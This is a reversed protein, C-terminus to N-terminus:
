KELADKLESTAEKAEELTPAPGFVMRPMPPESRDDILDDDDSGGAFQWDDVEWVSRRVVSEIKSGGESSSSIVGASDSPATNRAALADLSPGARIGGSFVGIGAARAVARMAGGGGMQVHFEFPTIQPLLSFQPFSSRSPLPPNFVFSLIVGPNKGPSLHRRKEKKRDRICM